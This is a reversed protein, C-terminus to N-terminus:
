KGFGKRIFLPDQRFAGLHKIHASDCAGFGLSSGVSEVNLFDYVCERYVGKTNTFMTIGKRPRLMPPPVFIGKAAEGM